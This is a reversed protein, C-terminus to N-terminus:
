FIWLLFYSMIPNIPRCLSGMDGMKKEFQQKAQITETATFNVMHEVHMFGTTHDLFICGGSYMMDPHRKGQSTYLCRHCSVKFHVM